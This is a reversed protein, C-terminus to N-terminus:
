RNRLLSEINIIRVINEDFTFLFNGVVFAQNNAPLEAISRGNNDIVLTTRNQAILRYDKTDFYQTYFETEPFSNLINFTSDLEIVRGQNTVVFYHSIETDILNNWISDALQKCLTPPVFRLAVENKNLSFTHESLRKGSKMDYSFIKRSDLLTIEDNHFVHDIVMESKEMTSFYVQKGSEKDYGALFALGLDTRNGEEFAYGRNLLFLQKDNVFLTSKTTQRKPLNMQWLNNGMEDVAVLKEKGALYFVNKDYCVNSVIDTYQTPPVATYGDGTAASLLVNITTLLISATYDKKSTKMDIDWGGGTRTDISHLGDSALMLTSDNYLFLDNIGNRDSVKRTWKKKGDVLGIAGIKDSIRALAIHQAPFVDYIYKNSKWVQNGSFLNYAVAIGPSSVIVSNDTTFIRDETPNTKKKWLINNRTLDYVVLQGTPNGAISSNSSTTEVILLNSDALVTLRKIKLAFSIERASFYSGDIYKKGCLTETSIFSQTFASLCIIWTSLITYLRQM